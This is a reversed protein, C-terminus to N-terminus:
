AASVAKTGAARAAIKRRKGPYCDFALPAPTGLTTLSCAAYREFAGILQEVADRRAYLVALRKALPKALLGQEDIRLTKACMVRM